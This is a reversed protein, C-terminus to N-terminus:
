NHTSEDYEVHLLILGNPPMTVGAAQRKKAQLISPIEDPERKGLGIEVLTGTLIRVMNYLFGDGTYDITIEHADAQIQISDIRRITSKKMRQNSNFSMFDHEGLLLAAAAQMRSVDPIEEMHYLYRHELANRVPGIGIRYRYTKRIANYRSHFREPVVTLKTVSIDAPLYHNLYALLENPDKAERLHFNATQGLAHVGADTRGSGFVEVEYGAMRSLLTELKGQITNTTNKQKQWGNYRTGDYQLIIKYNM